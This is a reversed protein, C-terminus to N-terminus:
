KLLKELKKNRFESESLLEDEYVFKSNTSTNDIPIIHYECCKDGPYCQASHITYKFGRYFVVSKIGFKVSVYSKEYEEDSGGTGIFKRQLWSV